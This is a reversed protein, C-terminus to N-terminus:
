PFKILVKLMEGARRDFERFAAPADQFDYTNTVVADAQLGDKLMMDIVEVFDQKVANRSGYVALEKKQIITFNFDDINKKSIGVIVVRGASAVADIANQFTAPLGVAEVTVAFGDGSTTKDTWEKFADPSSNVFTGAAGLKTALELKGPAVDAVYVEAGFHKAALMALIGITGAGIVLVKEGPRIDARKVGHYSICFPEVLATERVGLGRSDYIREVPMALYHRFGGDRQAGMTENVVCCNLRGTRCPYCKGCNFYPNVTALMGKKVGYSNDAVDVVEVALEHGPIRPYSAYAFTGRYTGLDSGCIGGYLVKLLAEGPGPEPMPADEILVKGPEPIIIHKNVRIREEVSGPAFGGSSNTEDGDGRPPFLVM